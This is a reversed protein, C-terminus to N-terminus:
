KGSGKPVFMGNKMHFTHINKGDGSYDRGRIVIRDDAINFEELGFAFTKLFQFKKPNNGFVYYVMSDMRQYVSFILVIIADDLGDKDLDHILMEEVNLYGGSRGCEPRFSLHEGGELKVFCPGNADCFCDAIGEPVEYENNNIFDKTIPRALTQECAFIVIAFALMITLACRRQSYHM